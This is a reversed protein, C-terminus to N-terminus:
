GTDGGVEQTNPWRSRSAPSSPDIPLTAEDTSLASISREPRGHLAFQEVAAVPVGAGFQGGRDEFPDFAPVVGGAAM